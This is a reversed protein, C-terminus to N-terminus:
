HLTPPPVPIHEAASWIVTAHKPPNRLQALMQETRIGDLASFVDFLGDAGAAHTPIELTLGTRETLVWANHPDGPALSVESLADISIAGGTDPGFYTVQRETVQVVGPGGAGVQFRLRQVGTYVVLAGAIAVALGVWFMLGTETMLWMVGSLAIVGGLLPERWLWLKAKLDPRIM